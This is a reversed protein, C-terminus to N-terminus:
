ICLDISIIYHMCAHICAYMCLVHYIGNLERIPNTKLTYYTNELNAPDYNVVVAYRCTCTCSTDTFRAVSRYAACVSYIFLGSNSPEQETLLPLGSLPRM